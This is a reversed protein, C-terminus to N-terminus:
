LCSDLNVVAGQPEPCNIRTIILITCLFTISSLKNNKLFLVLPSLKTKRKKRLFSMWLLKWLLWLISLTRKWVELVMQQLLSNSLDSCILNWEMVPDKDCTKGDYIVLALIEMWQYLNQSVISLRYKCLFTQHKLLLRIIINQNSNVPNKWKGPNKLRGAVIM